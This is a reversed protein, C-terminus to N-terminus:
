QCGFTAKTVTVLRKQQDPGRLLWVALDNSNRSATFTVTFARTATGAPFATVQGRNQAGPTFYNSGGVPIDVRAGMTNDFGFTARYTTSNVKQVCTLLPVITKPVTVTYTRRPPCASGARAGTVTFTYTGPTRPIGIIVAAGSGSILQLGPPLAGATVSFTYKGGGSTSLAQLYPLAVYPQALTAPAVGIGCTPDSITISYTTTTGCGFADVVRVVM